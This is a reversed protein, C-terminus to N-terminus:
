DIICVRGVSEAVSGKKHLGPPKQSFTLTQAKSLGLNYIYYYTRGLCTRQVGERSDNRLEYAIVLFDRWDFPM